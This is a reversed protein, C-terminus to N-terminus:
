RSENAIERYGKGTPHVKDASLEHSRTDIVFDGFRKAILLVDARAGKDHNNPIIWYVRDANVSSRLTTLYYETYLTPPDNAGLSIIASQAYTKSITDNFKTVYAKSNIGSQAYTMCEQRVQSVGVAISDGLILCDIMAAGYFNTVVARNGQIM